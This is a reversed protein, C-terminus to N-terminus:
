TSGYGQGKSQAPCLADLISPFYGVDQSFFPLNMFRVHAPCDTVVEAVGRSELPARQNHGQGSENLQYSKVNKQEGTKM